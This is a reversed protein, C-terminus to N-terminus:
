KRAIRRNGRGQRKLQGKGVSNGLDHDKSRVNAASRVVSAAVIVHLSVIALNSESTM